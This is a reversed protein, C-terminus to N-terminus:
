VDGEEPTTEADPDEGQNPAPSMTVSVKEGDKDQSVTLLDLKQWQAVNWTPGRSRLPIWVGPVLQNIGVGTDPHLTSNDPVRVVMPTPWRGSINREAQGALTRQLAARAASTLVEEAGGETEGYASALQEVLGYPSHTREALGWVGNNNTVGFATATQMGYETVVPPDAFNEDRMEPLRGVPRHTDWLMIRRGVTTYDLGATAAMDDVEEWATRSFDPVVRSQGADDPYTLATLYPIINPDDPALANLLILTAREVVSRQGLQQGNVVRFSDNYGQRLIRRYPWVMVDKAELHVNDRQGTKRTVPGEWVREGDRLVVVEHTWAHTNELMRGCDAGFGNTNLLCNSIDDRKRNWTIDELPTIEGVLHQGGKLYIFARNNGCGLAERVSTLTPVEQTAAFGPTHIGWFSESESWDSVSSTLTDYTRAQWEYRVGAQFTHAPVNWLSLAGPTVTTGIITFWASDTTSVPRYRLDAKTQADAQDPDRFKWRFPVPKSVDVAEARSPSLPTPPTSTGSVFFSNTISWPGWAGQMDRTRVEWEYFTNASYTGPNAVYQNFSGPFGEQFWGGADRTPTAARRWHIQFAGQPSPVTDTADPDVHTWQFVNSALQSITANDAPAVLTPELPMRNTWWNITNYTQSLVGRSDRTYLRAYYRTNQSLGTLTVARRIAQKGFTSVVRTVPTTFDRTQSYWVELRVSNTANPDDIKASIVVRGTSKTVHEDTAVASNIQAETPPSPPQNAPPPDVWSLFASGNGTSGGGQTTSVSIMGGTFNSGGGGGGGPAVDLLGAQGGGGPLYGGGGGGGGYTSSVAPSAGAGGTGLPTDGANHGNLATNASSTGGNGGQIQTGGTANGVPGAGATGPSGNQGVLAGGAGGAGGDGSDGGAGGAVAKIAGTTSTLRIASAGGGGDGGTFGRGTGGPGGGGAIAGGGTQGTNARGAGGCLVYLVQGGSVRIQGSVRGGRRTGSGAGTLVVNVFAVGRPVVFRQWGGTFLFERSGM